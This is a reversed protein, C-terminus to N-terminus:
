KPKLGAPIMAFQDTDPGRCRYRTVYEWRSGEAMPFYDGSVPIARQIEHDVCSVAMFVIGVILTAAVMMRGRRAPKHSVRKLRM